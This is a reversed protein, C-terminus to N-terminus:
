VYRDYGKVNNFGLIPFLGECGAAMPM